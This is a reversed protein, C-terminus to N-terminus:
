KSCFRVTLHLQQTNKFSLSEKKSYEVEVKKKSKPKGKKEAKPKQKVPNVSKQFINSKESLSSTAFFKLKKRTKVFDDYSTIGRKVRNQSHSLRIIIM